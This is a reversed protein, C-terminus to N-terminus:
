NLYQVQILELMTWTEAGDESNIQRVEFTNIGAVLENFIGIVDGQLHM